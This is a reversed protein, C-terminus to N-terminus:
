APALQRYYFATADLSGGVSRAYAPIVGARTYGLKQYLLESPDGHRTDLVLLSRARERALAELERMLREGIGQRRSARHVLLRQVEARHIANPRTALELQVSGVVEEGRSAVLLLRRGVEVDAFVAFWYDSAAERSLPPLFGVSAGSDVADRLLDILGGLKERAGNASLLEIDM